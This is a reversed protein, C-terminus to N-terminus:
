SSPSASGTSTGGLGCSDNLYTEVNTFAGGYQQQLGTVKQQFAAVANPDKFDVQAATAIQEIGEAFATWDSKLEAPPDIARIQQAAQQLVTPLTSPDSEGNFTAGVHEQVAAAQVCFDSGAADASSEPASSSTRSSESAASSNGDGSGSCASLLVAAAAVSLGTRCVTLTRRM